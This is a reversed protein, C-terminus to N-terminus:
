RVPQAPDELTLGKHAEAADRDAELNKENCLTRARLDRVAADKLATLRQVQQDYEDLLAREQVDALEQCQISVASLADIHDQWAQAAAARRRRKAVPLSSQSRAAAVLERVDIADMAPAAVQGCGNGCYVTEDALQM